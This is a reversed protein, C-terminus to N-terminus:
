PQTASQQWLQPHRGYLGPALRPGFKQWLYEYFALLLLAMGAAMVISIAVDSPWHSGVYVRSYSVLLAPICFLYGIRRYFFILVMAACINNLTHDSPFSRGGANEPDPRSVGVRVWGTQHRAPTGSFWTVFHPVPRHLNLSVIRVGAVVENPRPRRILHKLGNGVLSDSILITLALVILMARARFGGWVAIAAAIIILPLLWFDLSSMLAMVGDLVPNTWTHNILILLKDEM